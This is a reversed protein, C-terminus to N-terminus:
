GGNTFDIAAANQLRGKVSITTNLYVTAGGTERVAIVEGCSQYSNREWTVTQRSDEFVDINKASSLLVKTKEQTVKNLEYQDENEDFQLSYCEGNYWYHSDDRMNITKGDDLVLIFRYDLDPNRDTSFISYQDQGFQSANIRM